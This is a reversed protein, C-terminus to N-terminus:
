VDDTGELQHDEELQVEVKLHVINPLTASFHSLVQAMHSFQWDIGECFVNTIVDLQEPHPNNAYGYTRFTVRRSYFCVQAYQFRNLKSGVSRDIFMPLQPVRFDTLQNLYCIYIRNLQPADIRSVLDELYESAGQFLFFTLAPLVTRTVPPPRMPNPHPTASRFQIIFLGLRPLASLGVVMAEPSIYGNPPINHLDLDVLDSTSLLLTPLAPFPIGILHIIKLCPASGGLFEAPLVAANGDDSVIISLSTLVPFPEQMVTTIKELESRTVALRVDRVRDVHELAAIINDKSSSAINGNRQNFYYHCDIFIPLAPWIGLNKGVPTRPTCVIQLGLRLPSSFVFRRWSRCIHVLLHWNWALLYQRPRQRADYSESEDNEKYFCFIELLVNGPLLSITTAQSHNDGATHCMVNTSALPVM